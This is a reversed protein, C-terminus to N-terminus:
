WKENIQLYKPYEEELDKLSFILNNLIKEIKEDDKVVTIKADGSQVKAVIHDKLGFVEILNISLTVMSSVSACVIDYGETAYGSHGKITIENQTINVRIM